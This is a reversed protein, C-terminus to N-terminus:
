FLQSLQQTPPATLSLAMAAWSTGSASIWQDKGHPFGSEKYPQFPFARTRVLWSGDPRQTRLLFGLGKQFAPDTTRLQGASYLAVLAQGTAYADSELAPLQGWGGDTRQEALLKAGAKSLHKADAKGWTLGLLQMTREENTIADANELWKRARLVKDDADKGYLQLARLSLATGTIVSSEIPPRAGFVMFSGDEIQQTSVLYAMAETTSDPKYGEANLGILPYTVSIAPDPLNQKGEAMQERLPRFMALVSKIQQESVQKDVSFGRERALSYAMQPLSQQHCSACSSVKSFEPGSKQLLAVAREVSQKIMASDSAGHAKLTEVTPTYGRRLAWTLASDGMKNVVNPDVGLKLLEEVLAKDGVENMAAWMLTTSGVGDVAKVDAGKEILARAIAANKQMISLILPTTGLFRGENPNAGDALMRKATATDSRLVAGILPTPPTFDPVQAGVLLAAGLATILSRYLLM